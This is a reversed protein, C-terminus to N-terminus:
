DAQIDNPKAEEAIKIQLDIYAKTIANKEKEMMEKERRLMRIEAYLAEQEEAKRTFCECMGFVDTGLYTVTNENMVLFLICCYEHKAKETTTPPTYLEKCFKCSMCQEKM